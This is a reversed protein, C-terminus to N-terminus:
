TASRVVFESHDIKVLTEFEIPETRPYMGAVAEIVFKLSLGSDSPSEASVRVSSIRPEFRRLASEIESALLTRAHPDRLSLGTCDPIGYMLISKSAYRYEDPVEVAARKTNLLSGIERLLSLKWQAKSLLVGSNEQGDPPIICLRRLLSSLYLEEAM